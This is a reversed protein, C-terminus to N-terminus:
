KVGKPTLKLKRLLEVWAEHSDTMTKEMDMVTKLCEAYNKETIKKYIYQIMIGQRQIMGILDHKIKKVSEDM